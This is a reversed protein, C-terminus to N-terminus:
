ASRGTKSERAAKAIEDNRALRKENQSRRRETNERITRALPSADRDGEPTKM